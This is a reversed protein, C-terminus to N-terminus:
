VNPTLRLRAVGADDCNRWESSGLKTSECWGSGDWCCGGRPPTSPICRPLKAENFSDLRGDIDIGSRRGNCINGELWWWLLLLLLGREGDEMRGECPNLAPYLSPVYGNNFGCSVFGEEILWNRRPLEASAGDAGNGPSVGGAGDGPQSLRGDGDGAFKGVKLMAGNVFGKFYGTKCGTKGCIADMM